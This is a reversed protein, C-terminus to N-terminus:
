MPVEICSFEDSHEFRSLKIILCIKKFKAIIIKFIPCRIGFLLCFYVNLHNKKERLQNLIYNIYPFAFFEYM